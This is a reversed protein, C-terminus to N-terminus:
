KKYIMQYLNAGLMDVECVKQYGIREYLKFANDKYTEVLLSLDNVSNDIAHAFLKKAIGQGRYDPLVALTDCYTTGKIGEIPMINTVGAIAEMQKNYLEERDQPYFCLCGAVIGDVEYVIFNDCAFKTNEDLFYQDFLRDLLAQENTKLLDIFVIDSAMMVLERIQDKDNITANRIM